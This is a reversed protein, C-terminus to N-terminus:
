TIHTLWETTDSKKSEMPQLRGTEETWPIELCSYQLLNCNGEGSSRGSEPILRTTEQRAPLNKVLSGGLFGLCTPLQSLKHSQCSIHYSNANIRKKKILGIRHSMQFSGSTPFSQLCSSFPVVSSSITPHCWWSLPCSNPYIGPTPSPCPPRTWPTVFLQVRSLSQVSSIRHCNYSVASLENRIKNFPLKIRHVSQM